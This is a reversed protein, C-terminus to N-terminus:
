LPDGQLHGRLHELWGKVRCPSGPRSLLSPKGPVSLCFRCGSPGARPGEQGQSHPSSLLTERLSAGSGAAQSKALMM